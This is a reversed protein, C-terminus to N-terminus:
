FQSRTVDALWALFAVRREKGEKRRETDLNLVKGIDPSMPSPSLTMESSPSTIEKGKRKGYGVGNVLQEHFIILSSKRKQGGGGLEVKFVCYVGKERISSLANGAQGAAGEATEV